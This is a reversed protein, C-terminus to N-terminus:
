KLRLVSFRKLGLVRAVYPITVLQSAHLRDSTKVEIFRVQFDRVLTLDPWGKRYEYPDKGIALVLSRLLDRGLAELLEVMLNASLGFFQEVIYGRYIKGFAERVSAPTARLIEAAVEEASGEKLQAEFYASSAMSEAQDALYPLRQALRVLAPFSAAKLLTLITGGECAAGRWGDMQALDLARIAPQEKVSSEIEEFGIGIRQCQETIPMSILAVTAGLETPQGDGGVLGRKRLAGLTGGQVREGTDRVLAMLGKRMTKTLADNVWPRGTLLSAEQYRVDFSMKTDQEKLTRKFLQGADHQCLGHTVWGCPRRRYVRM